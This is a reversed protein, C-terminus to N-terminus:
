PCIVPLSWGYSLGDCNIVGCMSASVVMLGVIVGASASWLWLYIRFRVGWNWPVVVAPICDGFCGPM